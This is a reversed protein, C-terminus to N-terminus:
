SLRDVVRKAAADYPVVAGLLPKLDKTWSKELEAIKEIQKRTLM